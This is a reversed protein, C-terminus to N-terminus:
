FVGRHMGGDVNLVHGNIYAARESCLFAIASAAEEPLGIRNMPSLSEYQATLEELSVGRRQAQEALGALMRTTGIVGIAVTNLTVGDEAFENSVLKLLATAAARTSTGLLHPVGPPPEAVGSSSLNVIRGWRRDKMRPIVLRVLRVVSLTMGQFAEEFELDTADGFRGSRPGMVNAVVIDPDGFTERTFAVVRDIEESATLDGVIGEAEGGAARISNVTDTISDRDQALAAVTVRAGEAALFEATARGVGNSGGSVLAVRGAIGLDM